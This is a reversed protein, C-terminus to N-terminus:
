LPILAETWVINVNEVFANTESDSNYSITIQADELLYVEDYGWNGYSNPEGFQGRVEEKTTGIEILEFEALSFEFGNNDGSSISSAITEARSNSMLAVAVIGVLVLCIASLWIMPKKYKLVNKVRGKTDGEGFALPTAAILKKTTAFKLLAESYDARLKTNMKKIVAEDCSIEMDKASLMFALWVLPNFWHMSLAIFALIRTIHDLRKIHTQEHSIIFEQETQTLNSPLYIKPKILGLVFPSDIHDAIYIGKTLPTAGILKQKLKILSTISFILMIAIGILWINALIPLITDPQSIGDAGTVVYYGNEGAWIPEIGHEIAIQYENTNDHFFNTTGIYDDTFESVINNDTITTPLLGIDSEFAFPCILRILVVAM